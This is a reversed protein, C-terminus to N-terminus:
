VYFRGLHREYKKLYSILRNALVNGNSSLTLVLQLDEHCKKLTNSLSLLIKYKFNKKNEPSQDM